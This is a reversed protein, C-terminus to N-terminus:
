VGETMSSLEDADATVSSVGSDVVVMDRGDNEWCSSAVGGESEGPAM